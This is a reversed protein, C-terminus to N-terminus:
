EQPMHEKIKKLNIRGLKITIKRINAKLLNIYRYNNRKDYFVFLLAGAFLLVIIV